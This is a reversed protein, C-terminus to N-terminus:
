TWIMILCIVLREEKRWNHKCLIKEKSGELLLDDQLSFIQILRKMSEILADLRHDSLPSINKVVERREVEMRTRRIMLNSEVDVVVIQMDELTSLNRERLHYVIEAEFGNLFHWM